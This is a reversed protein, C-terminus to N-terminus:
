QNRKSTTTKVEPKYEIAKQASKIQGEPINSLENCAEKLLALQKTKESLEEKKHEIQLPEEKKHEIQLPEEKKHEIQLPEEKIDEVSNSHTIEEENNDVMDEAVNATTIEEEVEIEKDIPMNDLDKEMNNYSNLETDLLKFEQDLITDKEGFASKYSKILTKASNANNAAVDADSGASNFFLKQMKELDGGTNDNNVGRLKDIAALEKSDPKLLNIEEKIREKATSDLSSDKLRFMLEEIKANNVNIKKLMKRYPALQQLGMGKKMGEYYKTFQRSPHNGINKTNTIENRETNDMKQLTDADKDIMEIDVNVNEHLGKLARAYIDNMPSNFGINPPTISKQRNVKISREGDDQSLPDFEKNGADPSGMHSLVTGFDLVNKTSMLTNYAKQIDQSKESEKKPAKGMYGEAGPVISYLASFASSTMDNLKGMSNDHADPTAFLTFRAELTSQQKNTLTDGKATAYINEFDQQLENKDKKSNVEDIKSYKDKINKDKKFISENSKVIDDMIETVKLGDKKDFFKKVVDQREELKFNKLYSIQEPRMYKLLVQEFEASIEGNDIDLMESVLTALSNSFEVKDEKSITEGEKLFSLQHKLNSNLNMVKELDSLVTKGENIIEETNSIIEEINEDLLNMDELTDKVEAINDVTFDINTIREIDKAELNDQNLLKNKLELLVSDQTSSKVHTNIEEMDMSKAELIKMNESGTDPNFFSELNLSELDNMSIGLTKSLEELGKRDDKYFDTLDNLISSIYMSIEKVEEKSVEGSVLNFSQSVKGENVGYIYKVLEITEVQTLDLQSVEKLDKITMDEKILIDKVKSM